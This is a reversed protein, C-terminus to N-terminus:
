RSAPLAERIADLVIASHDVFLLHGADEVLDLRSRPIAAALYEGDSVPVNQDEVGHWLRVPAVINSLDFGWSQTLLRLDSAVGRSGSAFAERLNVALEGALEPDTDVRARDVAAMQGLLAQVGAPKRVVAALRAAAPRTLFPFRRLMMLGRRRARAARDLAAPTASDLPALSSVLAAITVRDGLRHACALAYPGGGSVGLVAFRDLGLHDVVAAAIDAWDLVRQRPAWPSAGIGPRDIAIIRVSKEAGDDDFACAEVTSGPLGHCYLVPTGAPDGYEAIGVVSNALTITHPRISAM